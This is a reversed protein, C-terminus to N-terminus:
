LNVSNGQVTDEKIRVSKSAPDYILTLKEGKCDTLIGENGNMNLIFPGLVFGQERLWKRIAYEAITKAGKIAM